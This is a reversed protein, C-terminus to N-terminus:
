CWASWSTGVQKDTDDTEPLNAADLATDVGAYSRIIRLPLGPSRGGRAWRSSRFNVRVARSSAQPRGATPPRGSSPWSMTPSGPRGPPASLRVLVQYTRDNAPRSPGSRRSSSPPVVFTPGCGPQVCSGVLPIASQNVTWPSSSAAHRRTPHASPEM